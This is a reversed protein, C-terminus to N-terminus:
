ANERADIQRYDNKRYLYENQMVFAADKEPTAPYNAM